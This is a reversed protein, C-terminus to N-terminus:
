LLYKVQDEGSWSTNGEIVKVTDVYVWVTVAKNGTEQRLGNMWSQVLKTGTIKDFRMANYFDRSVDVYLISDQVSMMLIETISKFVSCMKSAVQKDKNSKGGSQSCAFVNGSTIVVFLIVLLMLRKMDQEGM